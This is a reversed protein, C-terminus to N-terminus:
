PSIQKMFRILESGYRVLAGGSFLLLAGDLHGPGWQSMLGRGRGRFVNQRLFGDVMNILVFCGLPAVIRLSAQSTFISHVGGSVVTLGALFGVYAVVVSAILRILPATSVTEFREMGSYLGVFMRVILILMYFYLLDYIMQSSVIQTLFKSVFSEPVKLDIKLWSSVVRFMNLSEAAGAGKALLGLAVFPLIDPYIGSKQLLTGFNRFSQGASGFASTPNNM